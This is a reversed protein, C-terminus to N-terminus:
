FTRIGSRTIRKYSNCELECTGVLLTRFPFALCSSVAVTTVPLISVRQSKAELSQSFYREADM